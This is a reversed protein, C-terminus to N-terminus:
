SLNLARFISKYTRLSFEKKKELITSHETKYIPNEIHSTLKDFLIESFPENLFILSDEIGMNKYLYDLRDLAVLGVSKKEMAMSCVNAHFRMGIIFQAKQYINFTLNCGFDGQVYPSVIIRKRIHFDNIGSLLEQIAIYDSFIHPAFLIDLDTEKIVKQIFKLLESLYFKYNVSGVIMNKMQVQDKTINILIYKKESILFELKKPKYFFANDLIEPILEYKSGFLKNIIFKSGDNRLALTANDKNLILNLFNEFKQLNGEPVDQHQLIGMSSIIIPTKIKLFINDSFDLTTGTNSNEICFNFFGGGGIIVVDYNNTLEVFNEDFFLKDPLNYNKYFRRIELRDIEPSKEFITNLINGLGFHSANDGINGTFSALHLIRNNM